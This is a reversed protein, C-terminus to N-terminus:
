TYFLKVEESLQSTVILKAVNPKPKRIVPCRLQAARPAIDKEFLYGCRVCQYFIQQQAM